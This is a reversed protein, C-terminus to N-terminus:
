SKVNVEGGYKTKLHKQWLFLGKGTLNGVAGYFTIVVMQDIINQILLSLVFLVAWMIFVDPSKIWEKIKKWFPIMALIILVLALGSIVQMYGKGQWLPFYLLIVSIPPVVCFLVGAFGLLFVKSKYHKM